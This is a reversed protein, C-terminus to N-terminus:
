SKRFSRDGRGAGPHARRPGSSRPAAVLELPGAAATLAGGSAGSSGGAGTPVNMANM